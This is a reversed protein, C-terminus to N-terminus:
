LTTGVTVQEAQGESEAVGAYMLDLREVCLTSCGVWQM